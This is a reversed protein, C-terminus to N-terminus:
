RRGHRRRVYQAELRRHGCGLELITRHGQVDINRVRGWRQRICGAFVFFGHGDRGLVWAENASGREHGRRERRAAVAPLAGLPDGNLELVGVTCFALLLFHM